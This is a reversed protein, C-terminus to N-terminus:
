HTYSWIGDTVWRWGDGPELNAFDTTDQYGELWNWDDQSDFLAFDAGGSVLAYLVDNPILIAKKM